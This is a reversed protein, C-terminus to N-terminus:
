EFKIRKIRKARLRNKPLMGSVAKILIEGPKKEFIVKMPTHKDGGLYGSHSFYTKDEMKKGTVKINKINKVIVFHEFDKNPMYDVRNKGQLILAIESALRGLVKGKADINYEKKTEIKEM